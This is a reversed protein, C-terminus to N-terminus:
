PSAIGADFLVLEDVFLTATKASDGEVFVFVDDVLNGATFPSNATGDNRQSDRAFDLCQTVWRNQPLHALRIHRNDQATADFVQVTLESAGSLHFQFRLEFRM